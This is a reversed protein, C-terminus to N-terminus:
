ACCCRGVCKSLRRADHLASIRCEISFSLILVLLFLLLLLEAVFKWLLSVVAVM